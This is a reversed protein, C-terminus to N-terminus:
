TITPGPLTNRVKFGASNLPMRMPYIYLCCICTSHRDLTLGHYIGLQLHRLNSRKLNADDIRTNKNRLTYSGRFWGFGRWWFCGVWDTKPSATGIWPEAARNENWTQVFFRFVRQLKSIEDSTWQYIIILQNILVVLKSIALWFFSGERFSVTQLQFYAM